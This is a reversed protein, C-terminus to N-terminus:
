DLTEWGQYLGLRLFETKARVTIDSQFAPQYRHDYVYAKVLVRMYPAREFGDEM